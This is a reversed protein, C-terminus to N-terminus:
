RAPAIVPTRSASPVRIAAGITTLAAPAHAPRSADSAPNFTGTSGGVLSVVFSGDGVDGIRAAESLEFDALRAAMGAATGPARFM